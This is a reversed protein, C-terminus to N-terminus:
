KKYNYNVGPILMQDNYDKSSKDTWPKLKGADYLNKRYDKLEVSKPIGAEVLAPDSYTWMMQNWNDLGERVALREKDDKVGELVKLQDNTMLSDSFATNSLQKIDKPNFTKINQNAAVQNQIDALQDQKWKNSYTATIYAATM